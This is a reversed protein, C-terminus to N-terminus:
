YTNLAALRLFASTIPRARPRRLRSVYICLIAKCDAADRLLSELLITIRTMNLDYSPPKFPRCAHTAFADMPRPTTTRVLERMPACGSSSSPLVDPLIIDVIKRLFQSLQAQAEFTLHARPFGVIDSRHAEAKDWPRLQGYCTDNGRMVVCNPNYVTAVHGQEVGRKVREVDFIIWEFPAHETRYLLLALVKSSSESLEELTIYPLLWCQRHSLEPRDLKGRSEDLLLNDELLRHRYMEPM